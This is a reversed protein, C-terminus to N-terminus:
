KKFRKQVNQILTRLFSTYKQLYYVSLCTSLLVMLLGGIWYVWGHSYVTLLYASILIPLQLLFLKISRESYRFGYKVSTIIWVIVYDFLGSLAIAFGTWKLGGINFCVIVAIVIFFDYLLEQLLFTKSDGKSLSIYAVPQAVAKFALSLVALQTMPIAMAFKHSLFVSVIFPLFLLFSVIMPSILLSAVEIQSNALEFVKENDKNVTSLRPFYDAEMASFVLMGLYSVLLYGAGYAGTIEANGKNMLFYSIVSMAGAGFFAAVTFFIGLKVMDFGDHLVSKSFLSIKYPYSRFSFGCTVTVSALSVLVLSPVLGRLGMFIFIPVSICFTLIVAILQSLAIMKLRRTGKLIAMEAGNIASLGVIPSLMVFSLTYGWDSDFGLYSFIPSLLICLLSGFVATLFAWSRVVLISHELGITDRKDMCESIKKVASISIGLDTTSKVQNITNNYITNIGFGTTGLLSSVIKTRAVTILTVLGQVGGFVGTYKVIRDYSTLKGDDINLKDKNIDSVSDLRLFYV